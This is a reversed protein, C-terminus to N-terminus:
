EEWNGKTVRLKNIVAVDAMLRRWQREARWNWDGAEMMLTTQVYSLAAQADRIRNLRRMTLGSSSRDRRDEKEM